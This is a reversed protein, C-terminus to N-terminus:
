FTSVSFKPKLTSSGTLGSFSIQLGLRTKHLDPVPTPHPQSVRLTKSGATCMFIFHATVELQAYCLKCSPDGRTHGNRWSNFRSGDSELCPLWTPSLIQLKIQHNLPATRCVGFPLPSLPTQSTCESSSWTVKQGRGPKSPLLALYTWNMWRPKWCPSRYAKIDPEQSRYSDLGQGQMIWHSFSPGVWTSIILHGTLQPLCYPM